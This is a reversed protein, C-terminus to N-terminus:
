KAAAGSARWPTYYFGLIFQNVWINANIIGGDNLSVDNTTYTLKYETFLSRRDSKFVRWEVGGIVQAAIGTLQPGHVEDKHKQGARWVEVHPLMFGLGIGAYPVIRPHLGTARYVGNLTLFNLGHTFELKGLISEFPATAPTDEGKHKGMLSVTQSRIATAKAHTFDVMLGISPIRTNWDVGRGGYYPSPKFSEEKWKLNEFTLDTGDPATFYVNSDPSVTKGAYLGVQMEPRALSTDRSGVSDPASSDTPQAFPLAAMMAGGLVAGSLVEGAVLVTNAIAAFVCLGAYVLVSMIGAGFLSHVAAFNDFLVSAASRDTVAAAILVGTLCTALVRRAVRGQPAHIHSRPRVSGHGRRGLGPFTIFIM